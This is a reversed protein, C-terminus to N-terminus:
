VYKMMVKIMVLIMYSYSKLYRQDCPDMIPHRYGFYVKTLVQKECKMFWWWLCVKSIMYIKMTEYFNKFWWLKSFMNNQVYIMAKFYRQVM